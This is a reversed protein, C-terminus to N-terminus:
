RAPVSPADQATTSSVGDCMFCYPRPVSITPLMDTMQQEQGLGSCPGESQQRMAPVQAGSSSRKSLRVLQTKLRVIGAVRGHEHVAQGNASLARVAASREVDDPRLASVDRLAPLMNRVEEPLSDDVYRRGKESMTPASTWASMLSEYWSSVAASLLDDLHPPQEM